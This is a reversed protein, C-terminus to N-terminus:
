VRLKFVVKSHMAISKVQAVLEQVKLLQMEGALTWQVTNPHVSRLRDHPLTAASSRTFLIGKSVGRRFPM